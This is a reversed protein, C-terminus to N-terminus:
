KATVSHKKDDLYPHDTWSFLAPLIHGKSTVRINGNITFTGTLSSTKSPAVRCLDAWISYSTVLCELSIDDIVARYRLAYPLLCFFCTWGTLICVLGVFVGSDTTCNVRELDSTMPWIWSAGCAECHSMGSRNAVSGRPCEGCSATGEQDAFYGETCATCSFSANLVAQSGKMCPTCNTAAKASIFGATCDQCVTLGFEAGYTGRDCDLCESSMASQIYRGPSCADCYSQGFGGVYRGPPCPICEHLGTDNAFNGRACLICKQMGPLPAYRGVPCDTCNAAWTRDTESFKGAPCPECVSGNLFRGVSCTLKGDLAAPEPLEPHAFVQPLSLPLLLASWLLVPRM